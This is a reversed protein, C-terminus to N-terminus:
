FRYIPTRSLRLIGDDISVGGPNEGVTLADISFNPSTNTSEGIEFMFNFGRYDSNGALSSVGHSDAFVQYGPVAVNLRISKANTVRFQINAHWYGVKTVIKM